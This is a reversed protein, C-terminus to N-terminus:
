FDIVSVNVSVSSLSQKIRNDSVTEKRKKYMYKGMAEYQDLELTTITKNSLRYSIM